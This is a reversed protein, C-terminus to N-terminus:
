KRKVQEMFPPPSSRQVHFLLQFNPSSFAPSIFPPPGHDNVWCQHEMQHTLRNLYYARSSMNPTEHLGLQLQPWRIGIALIWFTSDSSLWSAWLKCVKRLHVNTLPPILVMASSALATHCDLFIFIVGWLEKPLAALRLTDASDHGAQKVLEM